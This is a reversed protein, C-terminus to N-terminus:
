RFSVVPKLAEKAVFIESSVQKMGEPSSIVMFLYKGVPGSPVYDYWYCGSSFNGSRYEEMQFIGDMSDDPRIVLLQIGRLNSVFDKTVYWIRYNENLYYM